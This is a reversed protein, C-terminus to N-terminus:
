ILNVQLQEAAGPSVFINAYPGFGTTIGYVAKKAEIIKEVVRRSENIKVYAEKPISVSANREAVDRIDELLVASGNLSVIQRPASSSQLQTRYPYPTTEQERKQLIRLVESYEGNEIQNKIKLVDDHLIRDEELHKVESRVLDYAKKSGQGLGAKIIDLRLDVAQAANMLEIALVDGVLDISDSLQQCSLCEAPQTLLGTPHALTKLMNVISAAAYQPIMFSSNLGALAAKKDILFSTLGSNLVPNILRNIRRESVDALESVAVRLLDASLAQSIAKKSLIKRPPSNLAEDLLNTAYIIADRTAGHIQPIGRLSYADQVINSIDEPNQVLTSGKTLIRMNSATIVQGAHPRAKDHLAMDLEVAKGQLAEFTLAGCVDAADIINELRFINHAMIVTTFDISNIIANREYANLDYSGSIEPLTLARDGILVKGKGQLIDVFSVIPDDLGYKSKPILPIVSEDLISKIQKLVKPKGFIDLPLQYTYKELVNFLILVLLRAIEPSYYDKKMSDPMTIPPNYAFQKLISRISIRNSSDLEKIIKDSDLFSPPRLCLGQQTMTLVITITIAIIKRM